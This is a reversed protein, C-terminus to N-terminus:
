FAAKEAGTLLEELAQAEAGLAELKDAEVACVYRRLAGKSIENKKAQEAVAESFIEARLKAESRLQVLENIVARDMKIRGTRKSTPQEAQEIEQIRARTAEIEHILQESKRLCLQRDANREGNIGALRRL